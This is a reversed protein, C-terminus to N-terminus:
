SCIGVITLRNSDLCIDSIVHTRGLCMRVYEFHICFFKGFEMSTCCKRTKVRRISIRFNFGVPSSISHESNCFWSKICGMDHRTIDNSIDCSERKRYERKFSHLLRFTEFIRTEGVTHSGSISICEQSGIGIAISNGIPPSIIRM